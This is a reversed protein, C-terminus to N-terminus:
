LTEVDFMVIENKDMLTEILMFWILIHILFYGDEIFSFYL